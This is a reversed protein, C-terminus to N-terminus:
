FQKKENKYKLVEFVTFGTRLKKIEKENLKERIAKDSAILSNGFPDELILTLEDKGEMTNKIRKLISKCRSEAKKSECLKLVSEVVDKVRHLIGELNTIFAQSAPGPEINIGLEPIKIAGSNSRVIKVDLNDKNIKIKFRVPEEIKTAITEAHRFGCECVFSILLIENFYPVKYTKTIIEIKRGCCPCRIM